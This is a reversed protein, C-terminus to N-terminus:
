SQIMYHWCDQDVNETTTPLAAGASAGAHNRGANSTAMSGNYRTNSLKLLWISNLDGFLYNPMRHAGTLERRLWSFHCVDKTETKIRRSCTSDSCTCASCIHTCLAILILNFQRTIRGVLVQRVITRFRPFIQAEKRFFITIRKYHIPSQAWRRIGKNGLSFGDAPKNSQGLWLKKLLPPFLVGQRWVRSLRSKM